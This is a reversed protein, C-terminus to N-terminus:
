LILANYVHFGESEEGHREKYLEHQKLLNRIPSLLSWYIETNHVHLGRSRIIRQQELLPRATYGVLTVHCFGQRFTNYNEIYSGIYLEAELPFTKKGEIRRIANRSHKSSLSTKIDVTKGCLFFDVGGDGEKKYKWDTSVNFYIGAAAEGLFGVLGNEEFRGRGYETKKNNYAMSKSDDLDKCFQFLGGGVLVKACEITRTQGKIPNGTKPNYGPFTKMVYSTM